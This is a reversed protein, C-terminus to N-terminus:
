DTATDILAAPEYMGWPGRAVMAMGIRTFLKYKHPFNSGDRM